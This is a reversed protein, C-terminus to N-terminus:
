SNRETVRPVDHPVPFEERQTKHVSCPVASHTRKPHESRNRKQPTRVIAHEAPHLVHEQQLQHVLLFRRQRHHRHFLPQLRPSAIVHFRLGQSSPILTNASSSGFSRRDRLTDTIPFITKNFNLAFSILSTVQITRKENELSVVYNQQNFDLKANNVYIFDQGRTVFLTPYNDQTILRTRSDLTDLPLEWNVIHNLLIKENLIGWYKAFAENTPAFITLNGQLLREVDYRFLLSRFSSLEDEERITDLISRQWSPVAFVAVLLLLVGRSFYMNNTLSVLSTKLASDSQTLNTEIVACRM